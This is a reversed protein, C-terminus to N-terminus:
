RPLGPLPVGDPLRRVLTVASVLTNALVQSPHSDALRKWSPKRLVSCYDCELLRSLPGLPPQLQGDVGPASSITQEPRLLLHDLRPRRM